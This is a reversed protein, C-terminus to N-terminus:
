NQRQPATSIPPFLVRRAQGSSAQRKDPLVDIFFEGLVSRTVRVGRGGAQIFRFPREPHRVARELNDDRQALETFTAAGVPQSHPPYPSERPPPRVREGGQRGVLQKGCRTQEPSSARAMKRGWSSAHECESWDPEHEVLFSAVSRRPFTGLLQVKNSTFEFSAGFGAARGAAPM